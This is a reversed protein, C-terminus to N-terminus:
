FATVSKTPRGEVSILADTVSATQYNSVPLFFDVSM